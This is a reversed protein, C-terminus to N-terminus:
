FNMIKCLSKQLDDQEKELEKLRKEIRLRLTGVHEIKYVDKPLIPIICGEVFVGWDESRLLRSHLTDGNIFALCHEGENPLEESYFRNESILQLLTKNKM